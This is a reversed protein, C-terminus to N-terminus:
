EYKLSIHHEGSNEGVALGGGEFMNTSRQVRTTQVRRPKMKNIWAASVAGYPSSVSRPKWVVEGMSDVGVWTGAAVSRVM